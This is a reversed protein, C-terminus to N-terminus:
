DLPLARWVEDHNDDELTGEFARSAAEYCALSALLVGDEGPATPMRARWGWGANQVVALSINMLIVCTLTSLM